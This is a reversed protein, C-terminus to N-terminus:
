KVDKRGLASGRAGKYLRMLYNLQERLEIHEVIGLLGCDRMTSLSAIAAREYVRYDNDKKKYLKMATILHVEMTIGITANLIHYINNM